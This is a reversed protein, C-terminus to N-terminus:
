LFQSPDLLMKITYFISFCYHLVAVIRECSWLTLLTWNNWLDYLDAGRGMVVFLMAKHIVFLVVYATTTLFLVGFDRFISEYGGFKVSRRSTLLFFWSFFQALITVMQAMCLILLNFITTSFTPEFISNFAFDAFCAIFIFFCFSAIKSNM